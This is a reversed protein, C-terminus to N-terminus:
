IGINEKNNSYFKNEKVGFVGIACVGQDSWFWPILESKTGCYSQSDLTQKQILM